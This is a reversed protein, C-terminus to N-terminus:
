PAAEAEKGRPALDLPTGDMDRPAEVGFRQLITPALDYIRADVRAGRAIGPGRALFIGHRRHTGKWVTDTRTLVPSGVAGVIEVGEEPILVLDPALDVFPGHYLEAPRKVDGVLGKLDPDALLRERIEEVVAEKAVHDKVYLPGEGDALAVTREWDVKALKSDGM